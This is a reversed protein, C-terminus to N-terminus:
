LAGSMISVENAANVIVRASSTEQSNLFFLFGSPMIMLYILMVDQINAVMLWFFAMILALLLIVRTRSKQILIRIATLVFNAGLLLMGLWGTDVLLATFAETRVLASINVTMQAQNFMKQLYPGIIFKHSNVGYGFFFAIPNDEVVIFSAQLHFYRDLDSPNGAAWLASIAKIFMDAYLHVSYIFQEWNVLYYISCLVALGIFIVPILVRYGFVTPSIILFVLIVLYSVRSDYYYAVILSTLILALGLWRRMRVSDKLLILAAPTSIVIPFTAYASGSWEIGQMAFRNMHRFAETYLGHMLYAIFYVLASIAILLAANRATPVPFDGKAIVFAFIGLAAYDIIWRSLRLDAWISIGRLSEVIMYIVLFSFLWLHLNKLDGAQRNRLSIERIMIPFLVGVLASIVLFEDILAYGQLMAGATGVSVVILIPWILRPRLAITVGVAIGAVGTLVAGVLAFIGM